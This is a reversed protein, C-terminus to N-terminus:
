YEPEFEPAHDSFQGRELRECRRQLEQYAAISESLVEARQLQEDRLARQYPTSPNWAQGINEWLAVLEALEELRFQPKIGRM